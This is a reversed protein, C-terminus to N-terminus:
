VDVLGARAFAATFAEDPHLLFAWTRPQDQESTEGVRGYSGVHGVYMWQGCEVQASQAYVPEGM